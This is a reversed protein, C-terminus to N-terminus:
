YPPPIRVGPKKNLCDPIRETLDAWGDGVAKQILRAAGGFVEAPMAMQWIRVTNERDGTEILPFLWAVMDLFRDQPVASALVGLAAGQEQM